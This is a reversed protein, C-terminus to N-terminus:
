NELEYSAVRRALRSLYLCVPKTLELNRGGHSMKKLKLDTRSQGIQTSTM